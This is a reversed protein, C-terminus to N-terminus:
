LPSGAAAATLEEDVRDRSLAHLLDIELRDAALVRRVDGHAGYRTRGARTVQRRVDVPTETDSM